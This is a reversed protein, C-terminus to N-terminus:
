LLVSEKEEIIEQEIREREINRKQKIEKNPEFLGLENQIYARTRQMASFNYGSEYIAQVQEKTIFGDRKLSELIVITDVREYDKLAENEKFVAIVRKPNIGKRLM